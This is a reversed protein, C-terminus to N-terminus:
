DYNETRDGVLTIEFRSGIEPVPVSGPVTLEYGYGEDADETAIRAASPPLLTMFEEKWLLTWGKPLALEKGAAGHEAAFRLIEEVHKFELPVGAQEGLKKLVRRRVALSEALLWARNLYAASGTHVPQRGVEAPSAAKGAEAFPEQWRVAKAMWQKGQEQWYDEEAQAIEALEGLREVIAPNFERELVPLVVHRMRNRTFKLEANTSDDKWQQGIAALYQELERRRTSLLPRVLVGGEEMEARPHIGALGRGGTGRVVRMLVTEAQDDLTHGTAIKGLVLEATGGSTKRGILESFFDRRLERAATEISIGEVEAHKRVDASSSRFELRYDRALQEVYEQDSDSEPGRLKHNFHVVTIVIGLERRLELLIRLLAVSDCGGSVAVGVREGPRLLERRRVYELVRLILGQVVGHYMWSSHAAGNRACTM